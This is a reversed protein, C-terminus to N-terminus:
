VRQNNQQQKAETVKGSSACPNSQDIKHLIQFSEFGKYLDDFGQVLTKKKKKGQVPFSRNLDQKFDLKSSLQFRFAHAQLFLDSASFTFIYFLPLTSLPKTFLPIPVSSFPQPHPQGLDKNGMVAQRLLIQM